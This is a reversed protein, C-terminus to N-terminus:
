SQASKKAQAWRRRQAEAIRARGEASVRHQRRRPTGDLQAQVDAMELNLAALRQEYGVLAMRLLEPDVQATASAPAPTAQKGGKMQAAHVRWLHKTLTSRSNFHRPRPCLTCQAM